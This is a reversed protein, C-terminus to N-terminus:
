LASVLKVNVSMSKSYASDLTVSLQRSAAPALNDYSVSRNLVIRDGDFVIFNVAISKATNENNTVRVSAATSTNSIPQVTQETLQIDAVPQESSQTGNSSPSNTDDTNIQSGVLFYAAACLGIFILSGAIIVVKKM